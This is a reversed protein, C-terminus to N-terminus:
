SNELCYRIFYAVESETLNSWELEEVWIGFGASYLM